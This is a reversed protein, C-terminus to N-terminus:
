LVEATKKQNKNKYMLADAEFLLESLSNENEHNYEVAGISISLEFKRKGLRNFQVLKEQFREIIIRNSVGQTGLALIAFEDGGIRAIIDSDRFTARLINTADKLAQDGSKHGYNDNIWKFRDIDAFFVHILKKESYRSHMNLQQKCLTYFGRRNYLGTLEDVLTTHRLEVLMRHRDIAHKISRAMYGPNVEKKILFDQAGKQLTESAFTEDDKDTLMVIPTEPINNFVSRFTEFGKCDPLNPNLLVVDVNDKKLRDLGASLYEANEIRFSSYEGKSLVTQILDADTANDEILLVKIQKNEM